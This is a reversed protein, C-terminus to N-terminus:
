SQKTLNNNVASSCMKVKIENAGRYTLLNSDWEKIHTENAGRCDGQDETVWPGMKELLKVIPQGEIKLLISVPPEPKDPEPPTFTSVEEPELHELKLHQEYDTLIIAKDSAYTNGNIFWLFYWHNM